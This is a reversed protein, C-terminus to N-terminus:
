RGTAELNGIMEELDQKREPRLNPMAALAKLGGLNRPGASGQLMRWANESVYGSIRSSLIKLAADAVVPKM